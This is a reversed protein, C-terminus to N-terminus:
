KSVWPERGRLTRQVVTTSGSTQGPRPRTIEAGRRVEINVSGGPVVDVLALEAVAPEQGGEGAQRVVLVLQLGDERRALGEGVVISADEKEPQDVPMVSGGVM